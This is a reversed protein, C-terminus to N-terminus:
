IAASWIIVPWKDYGYLIQFNPSFFNFHCLPLTCLAYKDFYFLDILDTRGNDHNFYIFLSWHMLWIRSQVQNMPSSFNQLLSIIKLILFPYFLVHWWLLFTGPSPSLSLLPFPTFRLNLLKKWGILSKLLLIGTKCWFRLQWNGGCHVWVRKMTQACAETSIFIIPLALTTEVSSSFSRMSICHM